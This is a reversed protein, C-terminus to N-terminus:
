RFNKMELYYKGIFSSHFDRVYNLFYLENM